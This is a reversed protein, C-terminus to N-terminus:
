ALSVATAVISLVGRRTRTVHGQASLREGVPCAAAEEYQDAGLRSATLIVQLEATEDSLMVFALRGAEQYSSVVQGTVTIPDHGGDDHGRSLDGWGRVVGSLSVLRHETM